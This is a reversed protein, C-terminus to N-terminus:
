HGTENLDGINPYWHYAAHMGFRDTIDYHAGIGYSMDTDHSDGSWPGFDDRYTVDQDWSFVGVTGVLSFRETVPWSGALWAELGDAEIEDRFNPESPSNGSAELEGLDM